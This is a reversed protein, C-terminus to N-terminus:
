DDQNDLDQSIEDLTLGHYEDPFIRLFLFWSISFLDSIERYIEIVIKGFRDREIGLFFTKKKHLRSSGEM